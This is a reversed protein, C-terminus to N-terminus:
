HTKKSPVHQHGGYKIYVHHIEVSNWIKDQNSLIEKIGFDIVSEESTDSPNVDKNTALKQKFYKANVFRM